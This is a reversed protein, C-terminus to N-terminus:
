SFWIISALQKLTYSISKVLGSVIDNLQIRSLALPYNLQRPPALHPVSLFPTFSDKEIDHHRYLREKAKLGSQM